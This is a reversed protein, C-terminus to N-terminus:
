YDMTSYLWVLKLSQISAPSPLLPSSLSCETSWQACWQSFYNTQIQLTNLKIYNHIKDFVMSNYTNVSTIFHLSFVIVDGRM